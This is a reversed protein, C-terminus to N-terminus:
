SYITSWCIVPIITISMLSRMMTMSKTYCWERFLWSWFWWWWWWPFYAIAPIVLIIIIVVAATGSSYRTSRNVLFSGWSNLQLRIHCHWCCDCQYIQYFLSWPVLWQAAGAFVRKYNKTTPTVPHRLQFLTPGSIWLVSTRIGDPAYSVFTLKESDFFTTSVRQRHASGGHIIIRVCLFSWTRVNFIM